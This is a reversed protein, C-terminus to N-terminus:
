VRLRGAARRDHCARMAAGVQDRRDLGFVMALDIAMPLGASPPPSKVHEATRRTRLSPSAALSTSITSAM